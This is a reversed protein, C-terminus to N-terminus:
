LPSTEKLKEVSERTGIIILKDGSQLVEGPRPMTIREENRIIGIVSAGYATRFHLEALSKGLKPSNNDVEIESVEFRELHPGPEGEDVQHLIQEAHKLAIPEGMIVLRDGPFLQFEPNPELYVRGARSVAIILIGTQARLSLDRILQGAFASTKRLRIESFALPWDMNEPFLHMAETLSDAAEESADSFPRLVVHTGKSLYANAEEEDKAAIAIKGEYRREKLLHILTLNLDKERVTSVIWSTCNLPLNDLFEPDGVDGFVVPVGRARWLELAQPDFDAGVIRKKRELLHQALGSGYNGLGILIVDVEPTVCVEPVLQERYPHNREFVKLLPGIWRYITGAYIIM